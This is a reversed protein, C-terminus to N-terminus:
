DIQTEDFLKIRRLKFESIGNKRVRIKGYNNFYREIIKCSNSTEEIRSQLNGMGGGDKGFYTTKLAVKDYRLVINDNIFYLLTRITDEKEDSSIYNTIKINSLNPRNIIGYFTGVIFNLHTTLTKRQNRWFPNFVPYIGWIFSKCLICQNFANQIFDSLTMFDTMSIDIDKIDDDMFVLYDNEEFYMEIFERQKVLGKVGAILNYEDGLVNKYEEYEENVVFIYISKKSINFVELTNLTQRQLIKSRKYSPICIRFPIENQNRRTNNMKSSTDTYLSSASVIM